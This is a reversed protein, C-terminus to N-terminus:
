KMYVECYQSLQQMGTTWFNQYLSKNKKRLVTFRICEEAIDGKTNKVGWERKRKLVAAACTIKPGTQMSHTLMRRTVGRIM